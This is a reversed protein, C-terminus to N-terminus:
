HGSALSLLTHGGPAPARARSSCLVCEECFRLQNGGQCDNLLFAVLDDRASTIVSRTEVVDLSSLRLLDRLMVRRHLDHFPELRWLAANENGARPVFSDLYNANLKGGRAQHKLVIYYQSM